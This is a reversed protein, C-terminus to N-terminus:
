LKEFTVDGNPSIGKGEGDFGTGLPDAVLAVVTSQVEFLAHIVAANDPDDQGLVTAVLDHADQHALCAAVGPDRPSEPLLCRLLAM